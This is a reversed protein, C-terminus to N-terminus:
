AAPCRSRAPDPRCSPLPAPTPDSRRLRDEAPFRRRDHRAFHAESFAKGADALRGTDSYLVGLNNLTTAVHPRYAGPDHAALDRYITLAESFAKEADALRGTDRYLIGLNNLTTAVVPRYAGPDRAALERSLQLAAILSREADAYQRESYAARAYESAYLVNKPRLQYAEAYDPLADVMRFELAFITARAFRDRAAREVNAEDSAILRDYIKRAEDLKGEHLLDQAVQVLTADEGKAALQRRTETLQSNLEKYKRAWENADAIKQKLDRDKMDLLEELRAMARPDIGSCNVTNGNGNIAPSCPGATSQAVDAATAIESWALAALLCAIRLSMM